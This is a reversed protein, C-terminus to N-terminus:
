KDLMMGLRPSWKKEGTDQVLSCVAGGGNNGGLLSRCSATRVGGGNV